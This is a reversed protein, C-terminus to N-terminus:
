SAKEGCGRATRTELLSNSLWRKMEATSTGRGGIAPAIASSLARPSAGPLLAGVPSPLLPRAETAPRASEPVLEARTRALVCRVCMLVCVFESVAFHKLLRLHPTPHALGRLNRSAPPRSPSLSGKAPQASSQGSGWRGPSASEPEM